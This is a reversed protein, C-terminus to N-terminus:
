IPKGLVCKRIDQGDLKQILSVAKEALIRAICVGDGGAPTVSVVSSLPRDDDHAFVVARRDDRRLRPRHGAADVFAAPEARSQRVHEFVHQELAGRRPGAAANVLFHLLGATVHVGVRAEVARHIVNVHRVGARARRNINQAVDHLVRRQRRVFQGLFHVDDAAFHVHVLVIGAAARAAPQKFGGVRLLGYRKVMM